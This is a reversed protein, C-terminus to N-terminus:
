VTITFKLQMSAGEGVPECKVLDMTEVIYHAGCNEIKSREHSTCVAIVTAGSAVGARIGSPSDEFVLCRKADFGLCEAALLFPDPAPKGAKLRKDDATITVPPPTIGVRTMCGYAYTKAGSTAVAYRGAPISEIMRKVGPLIRVSRDVAVAELQWAQLQHKEEKTPFVTIVDEEIADECIPSEVVAADGQPMGTLALLSSVRHLFSPRRFAALQSLGGAFSPARSSARTSPVSSSPSLAPTNASSSAPSIQLSNRRSNQRSGPGHLNYADAFYLISEEFANVESDMEHAKIHPKFQSLNDIARKGHTAAIVYSVDQGIDKAVKGWAAEVASISDTLTGDMDFLVADVLFTQTSSM